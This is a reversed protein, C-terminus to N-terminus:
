FLVILGQKEGFGFLLLFCSNFNIKGTENIMGSLGSNVVYHHAIIVVMTIIRFLELNSNRGGKTIKESKERM